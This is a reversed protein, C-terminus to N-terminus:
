MGRNFRNLERFSLRGDDDADADLFHMAGFNMFENRTVLGDGNGDMLRFRETKRVRSREERQALNRTGGQAGPGAGLRLAQFESLSMAGNNDADFAAFSQMHWADLEARDITGDRDRDHLQIRDKTGLYLHDRDRDRDRDHDPTQLRDRDRDRLQDPEDVRDRDRTRDQIVDGSAPSTTRKPPPASRGGSQAMAASTMALGVVVALCTSGFRM